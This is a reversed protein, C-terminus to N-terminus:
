NNHSISFHLRPALLHSDEPINRRTNEYFNVSTEYTSVAEMTLATISATLVPFNRRYWVASCGLLCDHEYEGGHSGSIECFALRLKSAETRALYLIKGLFM